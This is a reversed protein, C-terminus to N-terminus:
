KLFGEGIYIFLGALFIFVPFFLSWEGIMYMAFGFASAVMTLKLQLIRLM